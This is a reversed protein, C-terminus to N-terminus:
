AARSFKAARSGERRISRADSWNEHAGGQGDLHLTVPKQPIGAVPDPIVWVSHPQPGDSWLQGRMPTETCTQGVGAQWDSYVRHTWTIRKLPPCDVAPLKAGPPRKRLRVPKESPHLMTAKHERRMHDAFAQRDTTAFECLAPEGFTVSEDLRYCSAAFMTTQGALKRADSELEGRTVCQGPHHVHRRGAQRGAYAALKGLCRACTTDTTNSSM